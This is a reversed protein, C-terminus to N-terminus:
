RECNGKARPHFKKYADVLTSAEVKTYRQTTSISSHGLLEQITRLDGGNALLHTAFSHRYAHPSAHEPLNLARRLIILRKRYSSAILPKGSKGKFIVGDSLDHPCIRLYCGLAERIEPLIPVVREKNGKGRIMLEGIQGAIDKKSISLVESIRLGAGYLLLLIAYDRQGTWDPYIALINDLARLSDPVSLAKPLPKNKNIIKISFLSQNQTIDNKILYRMFSRLVSLARANSSTQHDSNKRSALWARFDKVSLSNITKLDVLGEKYQNLFHFFFYIDTLYAKLTHQSYGKNKALYGMWAQLLEVIVRDLKAM